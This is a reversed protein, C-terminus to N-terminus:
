RRAAALPQRARGCFVALGHAGDREFEDDFFTARDARLRAQLGERQEHTLERGTAADSREVEDLLSNVRTQADGATPSTARISTSTSASRAATRAGSLGRARAPADWTVTAAM